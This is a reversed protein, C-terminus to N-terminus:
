RKRKAPQLTRGEVVRACVGSPTDPGKEINLDTYMGRVLPALVPVQAPVAIYIARGKGYSNVTIAPSKEPTNTFM